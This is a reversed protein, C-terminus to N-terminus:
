KTENKKIGKMKVKNIFDTTLQYHNSNGNKREVMLIKKVELRMIAGSITVWSKIGCYRAIDGRSPWSEDDESDMRRVCGLLVIKELPSLSYERSVSQALAVLWLNEYDDTKRM